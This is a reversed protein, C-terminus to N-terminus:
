KNESLQLSFESLFLSLSFAPDETRPRLIVITIPKFFDGKVAKTPKLTIAVPGLGKRVAKGGTKLPTEKFATTLFPQNIVQSEAKYWIGYPTQISSLSLEKTWKHAQPNILSRQLTIM